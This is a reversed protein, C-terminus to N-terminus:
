PKGKLEPNVVYRSDGSEDTYHVNVEGCGACWYVEWTREHLPMEGFIITM